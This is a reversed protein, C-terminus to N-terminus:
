RWRRRVALKFSEAGSAAAERISRGTYHLYVDELSPERLTLSRVEVGLEEALRVLLPIKAEGRDVSVWLEGNLVRLDRVWGETGLRRILPEPDSCEVIITDGALQDKLASPTDVALIRGHDIIAVRDSLHDAEEMYHTTLFVTVREAEKLKLIYDWIARRTQVDLGLTPEDLFLVQPYHMLGRALELRRRMGGSYNKVLEDAWEELGVLELVERTREERQQRSLGYMRAHFDLNERGTLQDDLAPDQFVIGISRRVQGAERVVDYGAVWARGATPRLLTALMKITTTKGAGNPGLFGFVEGEQVELDIHDVALVENFRRTLGEAVVVGRSVM